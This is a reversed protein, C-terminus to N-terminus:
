FSGFIIKSRGYNKSLDIKLIRDLNEDSQSERERHIIVRHNRKFLKRKKIMSVIELYSNDKFPPDLFFLDFKKNEDLKHIYNEINEPVLEANNLANFKM